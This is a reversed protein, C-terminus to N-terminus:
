AARETASPAPSTLVFRTAALLRATIREVPIGERMGLQEVTEGALFRELLHIAYPKM